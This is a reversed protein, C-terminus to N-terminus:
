INWCSVYLYIQFWNDGFLSYCIFSVLCLFHIRADFIVKKLDPKSRYLVGLGLYPLNRIAMMYYHSTKLEPIIYTMLYCGLWISLSFFIIIPLRKINLIKILAYSSYVLIMNIALSPLFWFRLEEGNFISLLSNSKLYCYFLGVIEFPLILQLIRIGGVKLLMRFMETKSHHNGINNFLFIGAVFYFLSMHFSDYFNFWVENPKGLSYENIHGMVVLIIGLAKM